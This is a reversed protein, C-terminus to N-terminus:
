ESFPDRWWIFARRAVATAMRTDVKRSSANGAAASLKVRAAFPAANQLVLEVQSCFPTGAERVGPESAPVISM